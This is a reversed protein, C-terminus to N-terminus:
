RSVHLGLRCYASASSTCSVPVSWSCCCHDQWTKSAVLARRTSMDLEQHPGYSGWPTSLQLLLAQETEKLDICDSRNLSRPRTHNGTCLKSDRSAISSHKAYGPLQYYLRCSNSVNDLRIPTPHCTIWSFCAWVQTLLRVRGCSQKILQWTKFSCAPAQYGCISVSSTELERM